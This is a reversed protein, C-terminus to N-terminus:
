PRGWLIAAILRVVTRLSIRDAVLDYELKSSKWTGVDMVAPQM